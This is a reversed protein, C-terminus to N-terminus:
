KGYNNKVEKFLNILEDLDQKEFLATDVMGSITNHITGILVPDVENELTLQSLIRHEEITSLINRILIPLLHQHYHDKSQIFGKWKEVTLSDDNGGNQSIVITKIFPFVQRLIIKFQEGTFKSLLSNENEFLRSDIVIINAKSVVENDLLKKYDDGPKFKYSEYKFEYEKYIDRKNIFRTIENKVTDVDYFENETTEQLQNQKNLFICLQDLYREIERDLRDDIYCININKM